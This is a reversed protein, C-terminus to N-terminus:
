GNWKKNQLKNRELQSRYEFSIFLLDPAFLVGTIKREKRSWTIEVNKQRSMFWRRDGGGGGGPVTVGSARWRAM